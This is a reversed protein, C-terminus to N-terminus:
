KQTETQKITLIDAKEKPRDSKKTLRDTLINYLPPTISSLGIIFALNHRLAHLLCQHQPRHPKVAIIAYCVTLMTPIAKSTDIATFAMCIALMAHMTYM